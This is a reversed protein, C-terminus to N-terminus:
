LVGHSIFRLDNHPMRSEPVQNANFFGEKQLSTMVKGFKRSDFPHLREVQLACAADTRDQENTVASLAPSEITFLLHLRCLSASTGCGWSALTTSMQTYM